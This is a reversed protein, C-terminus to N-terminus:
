KHKENIVEFNYGINIKYNHETCQFKCRMGVYPEISQRQFYGKGYVALADILVEPYGNKTTGRIPMRFKKGKVIVSGDEVIIGELQM